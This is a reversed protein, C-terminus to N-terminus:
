SLHTILIKLGIGFLIIGGIIEARKEVIHGFKKGIEMGIVTLLFSTFGILATPFFIDGRLLGAGFGVVLADISTALSLVLLVYPNELMCKEDECEEKKKQFIMKTGIIALLAFAIWHDVAEFIKGFGAGIFIGALFMSGQFLGFSLAPVLYSKRRLTTAHAACAVSVTFCDMALGISIFIATIIDM